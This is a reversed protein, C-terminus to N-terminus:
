QFLHTPPHTTTKFQLKNTLEHRRMLSAFVVKMLQFERSYWRQTFFCPCISVHTIGVPYAGVHFFQHTSKQAIHVVCSCCSFVRYFMLFGSFSYLFVSFFPSIRQLLPSFFHHRIVFYFAERWFIEEEYGWQILAAVLENM